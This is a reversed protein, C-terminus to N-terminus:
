DKRSHACIIEQVKAINQPPPADHRQLYVATSVCSSIPLIKKYTASCHKTNVGYITDILRTSFVRM